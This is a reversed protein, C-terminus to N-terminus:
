RQPVCWGSSGFDNTRGSPLTLRVTCGRPDGSFLPVIGSGALAAAITKKTASTHNGGQNCEQEAGRHHRKALRILRKADTLTFGHAPAESQLVLLLDDADTPAVFRAETIQCDAGAAELAAAYAVRLTQPADMIDGVTDIRASAPIFKRVVYVLLDCDFGVAERSVFYIGNEGHYVRNCVASNFSRMTSADFFHYGAARNAACIDNITWKKTKM